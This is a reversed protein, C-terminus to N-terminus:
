LIPVVKDKVFHVLYKELPNATFKGLLVHKHSAALLHQCLSVIGYCTHYITTAIHESSQKIRNGQSGVMDLDM